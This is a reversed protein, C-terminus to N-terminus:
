GALWRETQHKPCNGMRNTIFYIDDGRFRLNQLYRLADYAEPYVPLMAWFDPNAKISAWVASVEESTYGLAEPYNWTHQEYGEPFLNRGTVKKCLAIFATNFDALVGDCDVGIIM